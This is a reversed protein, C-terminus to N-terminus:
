PVLLMILFVPADVWSGTSSLSVDEANTNFNWGSKIYGVLFLKWGGEELNCQLVENGDVGIIAGCDFGEYLRNDSSGKKRLGWSNNFRVSFIAGIATDSGTDSAISIDRWTGDDTPTKDVANTFFVAEDEFYGVLLITIESSVYAEFIKNDDIGTYIWTHNIFSDIDDTSGNKRLTCPHGDTDSSYAHIIVGTASDSVYSSVDVDVYSYKTSPTVNVPTIFKTAM